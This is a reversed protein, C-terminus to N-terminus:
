TIIIKKLYCACDQNFWKCESSVIIYIKVKSEGTDRGIYLAYYQFVRTRIKRLVTTKKMM